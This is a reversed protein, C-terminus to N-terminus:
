FNFGTCSQDIVHLLKTGAVGIGEGKIFGPLTKSSCELMAVHPGYILVFVIHWFRVHLLGNTSSCWCHDGDPELWLVTDSDLSQWCAGVEILLLARSSQLSRSHKMANDKNKHRIFQKRFSCPCGILYKINEVCPHTSNHYIYKVPFCNWSQVKSICNYINSYILHQQWSLITM